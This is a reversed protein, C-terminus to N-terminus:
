FRRAPLTVDFSGGAYDFTQTTPDSFTVEAGGAGFLVAGLTTATFTQTGNAPDTFSIDLVFTGGEGGAFVPSVSFDGLEVSGGSEPANFGSDPTYTLLSNGSTDVGIGTQTSVPTCSSEIVGYFCATDSGAYFSNGFCPLGVALVVASFLLGKIM